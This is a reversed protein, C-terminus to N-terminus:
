KIKHVKINTPQNAPVNFDRIPRKWEKAEELAQKYRETYLKNTETPILGVYRMGEDKDNVKQSIDKSM